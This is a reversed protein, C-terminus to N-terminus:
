LNIAYIESGSLLYIKGESEVVVMDSVGAMGSWTYQKVYEGTKNLVVVRKQSRDLLYVHESNEDTYIVALEQIPQNLGSMTFTEKAGRRYRYVEGTKLGVWVDGDITMDVAQALNPTIGAGLWRQKGGVGQTMSPYRWIENTGADLLYVNGGFIGLGVLRQWESDPKVLYGSTKGAVNVEIVGADSWVAVRSGSASLLKAGRILDGGGVLEAQKTKLDVEGVVGTKGDLVLLDTKYV